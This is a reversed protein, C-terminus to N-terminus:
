KESVKHEANVCHWRCMLWHLGTAWLHMVHHTFFPCLHFILICQYPWFCKTIHLSPSTTCQPLPFPWIFHMHTHSIHTWVKSNICLQVGVAHLHTQTLHYCTCTFTMLLLPCQRGVSLSKAASELRCCTSHLHPAIRHEMFYLWLIHKHSHAYTTLTISSPPINSVYHPPRLTCCTWLMASTRAANEKIVTSTPASMSAHGLIGERTNKRALQMMDM